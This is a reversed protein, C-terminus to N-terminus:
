IPKGNSVLWRNTYCINNGIPIVICADGLRVDGDRSINSLHKGAYTYKAHSINRPSISFTKKQLSKSETSSGGYTRCPETKLPTIIGLQKHTPSFYLINKRKEM